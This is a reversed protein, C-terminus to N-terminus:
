RSGGAASQGVDPDAATSSVRVAIKELIQELEAMRLPKALFGDMGAAICKEVAEPMVNATLALIPM